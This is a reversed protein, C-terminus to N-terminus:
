NNVYLGDEFIAKVEDVNRTKSLALILKIRAKQGPMHDAFIVGMERLMKGGGEYGYSEYVRGEFCRSVLVVPVNSDIANQIGKLMQPPVNGRGMAELVIGNDGKDLCFEILSSDQGATCKILDVKADIKNVEIRKSIRNCRYFIVTNNDVIGLPGFSPTAFANISMANVKTVENASNLEGNFCVLVGRNRAEHSIATCIAEALNSPGDYGLESSSRMAGTFVVPKETDITLDVLYATEELTDTGHTVVVGSIDDRLLLKQIFKSLEFMNDITMHPGPLSSFTLTEIECYREIGTVMKMIEEGTLGPVAAKIKEDVIMSITGGNFVVAVKKM